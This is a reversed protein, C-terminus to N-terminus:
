SRVNRMARAEPPIATWADRIKQLLRAAEDIADADNQLNAHVVRRMIYDYLRDLNAAIDGGASHDLSLRLEDVILGVRHLLAAKQMLDKREVYGRAASLRELAGDLLMCILRHPDAEAAAGHTAVSKYASIRAAQYSM